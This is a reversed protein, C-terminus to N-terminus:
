GTLLANESAAYAVSIKTNEDLFVDMVSSLSHGNKIVSSYKKFFELQNKRLLVCLVGALQYGDTIKNAHKVAYDFRVDESLKSLVRSLGHGDSLVRDEYADAVALRANQPLCGILHIVSWDKFSSDSDLIAKGYAKFLTLREEELPIEDLVDIFEAVTTALKINSEAFKAKDEKQEKLKQLFNQFEVNEKVEPVSREQM